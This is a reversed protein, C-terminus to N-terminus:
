HAPDPPNLRNEIRVLRVDMQGQLTDRRLDDGHSVCAKPDRSGERM